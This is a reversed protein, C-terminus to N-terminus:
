RSGLSIESDCEFVYSTDFVWNSICYGPLFDLQKERKGWLGVPGRGWVRAHDVLKSPVVSSVVGGSERM